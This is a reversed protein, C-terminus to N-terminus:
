EKVINIKVFNHGYLEQAKENRKQVAEEKTEFTGINYQQGNKQIKAQYTGYKTLYVGISKRNHSNSSADSIRLNLLRNDLPNNNIHDIIEGEQANMLYRHMHIMNGCIYAMAYGSSLNWSYKILEHYKNDDVLIEREKSTKIIAIGENNKLIITTLREKEKEDEIENKKKNYAEVAEEFTKFYGVHMEKKNHTIRVRYRDSNQTIGTPLIRNEKKVPEIFDVPKKIGNIKANPGFKNIVLQDYWWAAHDEKNFIIQDIKNNYKSTCKWKHDRKVFTVGIYKSSCYKKKIKNQGNQHRTAFRLNVKTNDLRNNNIHDVLPNEKSANLIFRGLQGYKTSVAYGNKDLHWKIENVRNYDDEDVITFDIEENFKNKLPIKMLNKLVIDM